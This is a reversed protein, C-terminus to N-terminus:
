ATHVLGLVLVIAGGLAAMDPRQRQVLATLLVLMLSQLHYVVTTVGM